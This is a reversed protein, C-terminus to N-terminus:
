ARLARVKPANAEHIYRRMTRGGYIKSGSDTLLGDDGPFASLEGICPTFVDGERVLLATERLHQM